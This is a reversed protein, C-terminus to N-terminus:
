FLNFVEPTPLRIRGLFSSTTFYARQLMHAIPKYPSSDSPGFIDSQLMPFTSTMIACRIHVGFLKSALHEAGVPCRYAPLDGPSSVTQLGNCWPSRIFPIVIGQGVNQCSVTPLPTLRSEAVKSATSVAM